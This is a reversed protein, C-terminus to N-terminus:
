GVPRCQPIHVLCMQPVTDCSYFAFQKACDFVYEKCQVPTISNCDVGQDIPPVAPEPIPIPIVVTTPRQGPTRSGPTPYANVTPPAFQTGGGPTPYPNWVAARNM